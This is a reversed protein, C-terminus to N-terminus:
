EAAQRFLGAACAQTRRDLHDLFQHVGRAGRAHGTAFDARHDRGGVKVIREDVVDAWAKPKERLTNVVDSGQEGSGREVELDGLRNGHQLDELQNVRGGGIQRRHKAGGDRTAITEAALDVLDEALEFLIPAQLNLRTLAAGINEKGVLRRAEMLNELRQRRLRTRHLGQEVLRDQLRELFVQRLRRDETVLRDLDGQLDHHEVAIHRDGTAILRYVQAHAKDRGRLGFRDIGLHLLKGASRGLNRRDGRDREPLIRM